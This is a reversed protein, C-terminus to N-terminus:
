AQGSGSGSRSSGSRDSSSRGPSSRLSMRPDSAEGGFFFGFNPPGKQFYEQCLQGNLGHNWIGVGRGWYGTYNEVFFRM